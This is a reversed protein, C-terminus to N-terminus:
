DVPTAARAALFRGGRNFQQFVHLLGTQSALSSGQWHWAFTMYGVAHSARWQALMHREEAPTPWRWPDGTFAQAVGWYRVHARDAAHIVTAIWGYDCRANQHCPYPDLALYDAAGAWLPLQQVIHSGQNSDVLMVTFANPDLSHILQSRAHHQAPATPCAYPDPEDSFFVGAVHPDSAAAALTSRLQADSVQWSCSSNDYDGVWLLGRTGRPLADAEDKSSVDLLNWGLSAAKAQAPGSDILYRYRFPKGPPAATHAPAVTAGAALLV